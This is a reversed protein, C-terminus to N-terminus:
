RATASPPTRSPAGGTAAFVTEHLAHAGIVGVCAAGRRLCQFDTCQAILSGIPQVWFATRDYGKTIVSQAYLLSSRLLLAALVILRKSGLSAKFTLLSLFDGVGSELFPAPNSCTSLLLEPM